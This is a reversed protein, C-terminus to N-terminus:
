ERGNLRSESLSPILNALTKSIPKRACPIYGVDFESAVQNLTFNCKYCLHLASTQRPYIPLQRLGGSHLFCWYICGKKSTVRPAASELPFDPIGM